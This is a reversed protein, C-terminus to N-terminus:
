AAMKSSKLSAIGKKIQEQLELIEPRRDPRATAAQKAAQELIERELNKAAVGARWRRFIFYAIVLVVVAASASIEIWLELDLFYGGVWIGALLFAAVFLIWM